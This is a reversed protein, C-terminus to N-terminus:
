EDRKRKRSESADIRAALRILRPARGAYYTKLISKAQNEKYAALTKAIVTSFVGDDCEVTLL